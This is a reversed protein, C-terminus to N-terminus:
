KGVVKRLVFLADESNIKQDGNMDALLVEQNSLTRKGVVSQLIYLADTASLRGDMDLDGQAYALGTTVTVSQSVVFTQEKQIACLVTYATNENLQEFIPSDQWTTGNDISFWLGAFSEDLVITNHTVTQVIPPSPQQTFGCSDCTYGGDLVLNHQPEMATGCDACANDCPTPRRHGPAVRQFPCHECVTDECDTFVHDPVDRSAGCENCDTDCVTDYVHDKVTRTIGCENCDTDCANDFRHNPVTRTLGCKNCNIDCANDYVHDPVTRTFGCENCNTDCANDYMHDPVARSAGCENCDEDCANQFVHEPVDRIHDCLNCVSDCDNDYIHTTTRTAGCENCDTDCGNDYVHYTMRISRCINCTTDCGNDYTHTITRTAGCVNCNTDCNNDYVHDPVTRTEGCVNCVTDCANDYTHTITRNQGCVNCTQDCTNTYVHDPVTRSANCINCNADCANSYVHDPVTRIDGCVNCATDCTNDYTHDPGTRILNCVNCYLDCVGDYVHDPVARAEGCVNCIDDCANDYTHTITRSRGCLNCITDCSHDYTHPAIRKYGCGNCDSDCANSYTHPPTRTLGCENCDADCVDTYVHDPVTRTLGCENCDADCVDTYVHDPVTRIAGCENCDVDCNNNYVHNPGVVKIPIEFTFTHYTVTAIKQGQTTTDVASVSFGTSIIDQKGDRHTLLLTLGTPDFVERGAHYVLKNFSTNVSVSIPYYFHIVNNKISNTGGGTIANWDAQSDTYYVKTLKTCGNFAGTGIHTVTGSITVTELKDCDIFAYKGISKVGDTITIDKINSNAFTYDPINGGTITISSLSKPFNGYDFTYLYYDAIYYSYYSKYHYHDYTSHDYDDLFYTTYPIATSSKRISSCYEFIYTAHSPTVWNCVSTDNEPIQLIDEKKPSELFGDANYVGYDFTILHGLYHISSNSADTWRSVECTYDNAALVNGGFLYAFLNPNDEMFKIIHPSDSDSPYDFSVMPMTISTLAQLDAFAGFEAAAVTDSIVLNTIMNCDKNALFSEVHSARIRGTGTSTIELTGDDYLCYTCSEYTATALLEGHGTDASAYTPLNITFLLALCLLLCLFRASKKM